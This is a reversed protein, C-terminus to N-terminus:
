AASCTQHPAGARACARTKNPKNAPPRVTRASPFQDRCNDTNKTLKNTKCVPITLTPQNLSPLLYSLYRAANSFRRGPPNPTATKMPSAFVRSEERLQLGSSNRRSQFLSIATVVNAFGVSCGKINRPGKSAAFCRAKAVSIALSWVSCVIPICISCAPKSVIMVQLVVGVDISVFGADRM